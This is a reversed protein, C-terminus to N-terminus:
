RIDINLIVFYMLVFFCSFYRHIVQNVIKRSNKYIKTVFMFNIFAFQKYDALKIEEIILM